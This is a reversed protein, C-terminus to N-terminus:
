GWDYSSRLVPTEVTVRMGLFVPCHAMGFTYRRKYAPSALSM